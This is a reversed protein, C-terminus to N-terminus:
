ENKMRKIQYGIIDVFVDYRNALFAIDKLNDGEKNLFNLPVLLHAAFADAEQEYWPKEGAIPSIREIHDVGLEKHMLFHGLEHALTFRRRVISNDKSIYVTKEKFNLLGSQNPDDFEYMFIQLGYNMSIEHIPIPPSLISNEELVREAERRAKKYNPQKEM